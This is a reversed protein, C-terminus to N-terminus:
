LMPNAIGGGGIGAINCLGMVAAFLILGAWEKGFVPFPEKHQCTM